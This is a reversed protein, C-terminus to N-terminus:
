RGYEQLATSIREMLAYQSNSDKSRVYENKMFGFNCELFHRTEDSSERDAQRRECLRTDLDYLEAQLRLVDLLRLQSFRRFIAMDPAEAMRDALNSYGGNSM